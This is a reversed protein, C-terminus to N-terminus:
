VMGAALIKRDSSLVTIGQLAASAVCADIVAQNMQSTNQLIPYEQGVTDQMTIGSQIVFWRSNISVTTDSTPFIDDIIVTLTPM